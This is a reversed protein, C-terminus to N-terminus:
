QASNRCARAPAVHHAQRHGLADLLQAVRSRAGHISSRACLRRLGAHEAPEGVPAVVTSPSVYERPSRPGAPGSRRAVDRGLPAGRVNSVSSSMTMASSRRVTSHGSGTRRRRRSDHSSRARPRPVVRARHDAAGVGARVEVAHAARRVGVRNRASMSRPRWSTDSSRATCSIVSAGARSTRGARGRRARPPHARRRRARRGRARDADSSAVSTCSRGPSVARSM